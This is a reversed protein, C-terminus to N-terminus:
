DVLAAFPWPEVDLYAARIVRMITADDTHRGKRYPNAELCARVSALVEDPAPTEERLLPRGLPYFFGARRLAVVIDVTDRRMGGKAAFSGLLGNSLDTALRSVRLPDALRDRYEASRALVTALVNLIAIERFASPYVLARPALPLKHGGAVSGSQMWRAYRRWPTSTAEILEHCASEVHGAVRVGIGIPRSDWFCFAWNDAEESGVVHGIEGFDSWPLAAPPFGVYQAEARDQRLVVAISRNPRVAVVRLGGLPDATFALLRSRRSRSM